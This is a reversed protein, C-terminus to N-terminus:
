ALPSAAASTNPRTAAAEASASCGADVQGRRRRRHVMGEALARREREADLLLVVKDVRHRPPEHRVRRPHERREVQRLARGAM